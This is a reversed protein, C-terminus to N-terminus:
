LAICTEALVGLIRKYSVPRYSVVLQIRSFLFDLSTSKRLALFRLDKIQGTKSLYEVARLSNECFYWKREM